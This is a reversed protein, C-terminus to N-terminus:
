AGPREALVSRKGDGRGQAQVNLTLHGNDRFKLASSAVQRYGDPEKEFVAVCDGNM